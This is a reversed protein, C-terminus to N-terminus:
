SDHRTLRRNKEQGLSYSITSRGNFGMVITVIGFVIM